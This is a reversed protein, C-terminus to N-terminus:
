RPEEHALALPPQGRLLWSLLEANAPPFDLAALRAREVWGFPARVAQGAALPRCALFHLEITGHPYDYVTAPYGGVVRVELGTEERCERVAAQPPTEDALLKGGPFEACGALVEDKARRGVLFRGAEEVVAIAVRVVPPM